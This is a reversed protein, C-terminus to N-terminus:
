SRWSSQWPKPSRQLDQPLSGCGDGASSSSSPARGALYRGYPLATQRTTLWAALGILLGCLPAILFVLV